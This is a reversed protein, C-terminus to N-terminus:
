SSDRLQLYCAFNQQGHGSNQAFFPFSPLINCTLLGAEVTNVISERISAITLLSVKRVRRNEIFGRRQM